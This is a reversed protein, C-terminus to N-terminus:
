NSKKIQKEHMRNWYVPPSFSREDALRSTNLINPKGVLGDCASSPNPFVQSLLYWIGFNDAREFSEVDVAVVDDDIDPPSNLELLDILLKENLEAM